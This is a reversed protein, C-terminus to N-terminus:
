HHFRKDQYPDAGAKPKDFVFLLTFRMTNSLPSRIQSVPILYSVDLQFVNYEIGIGSTFYSDRNYARFDQLYGGRLKLFGLYVMEAGGSLSFQEVNVFANERYAQVNALLRNAELHFTFQHHPLEGMVLSTGIRLNTPLSQASDKDQYWMKTGVNTLAVGIVPQLMRGDSGSNEGAWTACLDGSFARGGGQRVIIGNVGTPNSQIFRSTLGVSFHESLKRTYGVDMAFENPRFQNPAGTVGVTSINGFSFYRLSFALASNSDPKVAAAIYALNVDPILARLWPTYSVTFSTKKKAFALNALNWHIANADQASAVGADGMGAARADPAIRLFPVALNDEYLSYPAQAVLAATIFVGLSFTFIRKMFTSM